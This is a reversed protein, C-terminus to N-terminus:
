MVASAEEELADQLNGSGVVTGIIVAAIVLPAPAQGFVQAQGAATLQKESARHGLAVLIDEDTIKGGDGFTIEIGVKALMGQFDERFKKALEPDRVMDRTLNALAEQSYADSFAFTMKSGPLVFIKKAGEKKM